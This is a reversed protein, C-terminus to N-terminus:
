LNLQRIFSKMRGTKFIRDKGSRNLIEKQFMSEEVVVTDGNHSWTVSTFAENNIIKWLKMPFFSSVLKSHHQQAENCQRQDSPQLSEQFTTVVEYRPTKLVEKSDVKQDPSSKPTFERAPGQSLPPDMDPTWDEGWGQSAM